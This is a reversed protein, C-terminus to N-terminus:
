WLAEGFASSGPNWPTLVRCIRPKVANWRARHVGSRSASPAPTVQAQDEPAYRGATAM